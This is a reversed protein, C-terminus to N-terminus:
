VVSVEDYAPDLATTVCAQYALAPLTRKERYNMAPIPRGNEAPMTRITRLFSDLVM